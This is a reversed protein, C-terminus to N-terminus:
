AGPSLRLPPLAKRHQHYSHKHEGEVQTGGGRETFNQWM